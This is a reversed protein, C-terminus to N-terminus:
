SPSGRGPRVTLSSSRSKQPEPAPVAPEAEELWGKLLVLAVLAYLLGVPIGMLLGALQQDELATLGWLGAADGYVPYWLRPTFTLLSALVNEHVATTFLYAIGLGRSMRRSAEPGLVPWWFLLATILFSVHQLVHAVESELTLQFLGPAHWAWLVAAHLTWAVAPHTLARWPRRVLPHRAWGGLRRRWRLPLAWLFPLLPAGAVLLPAAVVMLLVHQAMHVSFLTGGLAAVPSILALVLAALGGAFAAARGRSVGAGRGARRWLRRLGRLYLGGALALGALVMPEASWASWLDHPAVLGEPHAM